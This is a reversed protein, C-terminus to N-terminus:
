SNTLKNKSTKYKSFNKMQDIVFTNSAYSILKGLNISWLLSKTLWPKRFSNLAKGPITGVITVACMKQLHRLLWARHLLFAYCAPCASQNQRRYTQSIRTVNRSSFMRWKEVSSFYNRNVKDTRQFGFFYACTAIEATHDIQGFM